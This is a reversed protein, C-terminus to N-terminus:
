QTSAWRGLLAELRSAVERRADGRDLGKLSFDITRHILTGFTRAFLSNWRKPMLNRPLRRVASGVRTSRARMNLSPKSRTARAARISSVWVGRSRKLTGVDLQQRRAASRERAAARADADSLCEAEAKSLAAEEVLVGQREYRKRARSFRVVVAHLTSYRTARRTLAADGRELFVLHALDACRLCLPREAEM